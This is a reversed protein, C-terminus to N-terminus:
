KILKIKQFIEVNGLRFQHLNLKEEKDQRARPWLDLTM